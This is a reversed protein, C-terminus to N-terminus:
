FSNVLTGVDAQVLRFQVEDAVLQKQINGIMVNANNLRIYANDILLFAEARPVRNLIVLKEFNSAALRAEAFATIVAEHLQEKGAPAKVVLARSYLEDVKDRFENPTLPASLSIAQTSGSPGVALQKMEKPSLSLVRSLQTQVQNFENFLDQVEASYAIYKERGEIERTLDIANKLNSHASKYLGRRYDLRASRLSDRASTIEVAAYEAAGRDRLSQLREDLQAAVEIVLEATRDLTSRLTGHLKEVETMVRQYDDPNYENELETIRRRIAISEEPQFFNLGEVTGVAIDRHIARCAANFNARKTDVVLASATSRASEARSRSEAYEGAEILANAEKLMTNASALRAHDYDWGGVQEATSISEEAERIIRYLANNARETSSGALEAAKAYNETGYVSRASGLLRRADEVERGAYLEAGATQARSIAALAEAIKEDASLQYAEKEALLALATARQATELALKLKDEQLNKEAEEILVQVQALEAARFRQTNESSASSLTRRAERLDETARGAIRQAMLEVDARAEAAQEVALKYEGGAITGKVTELKETSRALEAPAYQRAGDREYRSILNALEIAANHGVTHYVSALVSESLDVVEGSLVIAGRFDGQQQRLEATVLNNGGEEIRRGLEEQRTRKQNEFALQEANMDGVIPDFITDMQRYVTRTTELSNGANRIADQALVQFAGRQREYEDSADIHIGKIKDFAQETDEVRIARVETLYERLRDLSGPIYELIGGRELEGINAALEQIRDDSAARKTEIVLIQTQSLLVKSAEIVPRYRGEEFDTIIRLYFENAKEYDDNKFQKAGEILATTINGEIEEIAERSRRRLVQVVGEEAKNKAEAFRNAALVYDRDENSIKSANQIESQVTVVVEPAYRNGAEGRLQDLAQNADREKRDAENKLQALGSLVENKIQESFKIVDDWKNANKAEDAQGKLERIRQYPAPELRQLDNIDAVRIENQAEAYVANGHKPKISELLQDARAAAERAATLAAAADSTLTTNADSVKQRIAALEAPDHKEGSYNSEINALKSQTKRLSNEARTRQCGAFFVTALLIVALFAAQCNKFGMRPFVESSHRRGPM